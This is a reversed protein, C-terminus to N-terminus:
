LHLGESRCSLVCCRVTSIQKEFTPFPRRGGNVLSNRSEFIKELFSLSCKRLQFYVNMYSYIFHMHVM